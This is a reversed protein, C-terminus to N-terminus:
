KFCPVYAGCQSQSLCPPVGESYCCAAPACHERCQNEGVLTELNRFSCTDVLDSPAAPLSGPAAASNPDIKELALNLCSKHYEFCLVENGVLCSLDYTPPYDCCDAPACAKTCQIVDYNPNNETCWGSLGSPPVALTNTVYVPGQRNKAVIVGVTVIIAFVGACVLSSLCAWRSVGGVGSSGRRKGRPLGHLKPDLIEENEPYDNYVETSNQLYLPDPMRHPTLAGRENDGGPLDPDYVTTRRSNGKSHM